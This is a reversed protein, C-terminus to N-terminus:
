SAAELARRDAKSLRYPINESGNDWVCLVGYPRATYDLDGLWYIDVFVGVTDPEIEVGDFTYRLYTYLSTETRTPEGAAHFRTEANLDDASNEPTLNTTRTLTVDFHTGDKPPVSELGKDEALHKLTSKNYRVVLQVQKAEPFFVCRTVSFYGYSEPARTITAQEQRYATLKGGQERYVRVLTENATVTRIAKPDGSSCMRWVVIICVAFIVASVATKLIRGIVRPARARAM